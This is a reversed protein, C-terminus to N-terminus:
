IAENRSQGHQYAKNGIGRYLIEAQVLCRLVPLLKRTGTFTRVSRFCTYVADDIDAHALRNIAIKLHSPVRGIAIGKKLVNGNKM